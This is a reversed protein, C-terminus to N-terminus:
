KNENKHGDGDLTFKFGVNAQSFYVVIGEPDLFPVVRSGNVKLDELCEQIIKESFIGNYLIPVIECCSPRAPNNYWRTTNFLSFRKIGKPMGYGRQIGNGWWEGYHRGEGLYMLEEKHEYAWKAFGFNDNDPTIWKSRSGVLLEKEPTICIQANTGDIKETIVIERFLRYIKPFEKFEIM